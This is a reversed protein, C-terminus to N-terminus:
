SCIQNTSGSQTPCGCVSAPTASLWYSAILASASTKAAPMPSFAAASIAVAAPITADRYFEDAAFEDVASARRAAGEPLLRDTMGMRNHSFVFPTCGRKSPVMEQDSVNAVAGAM